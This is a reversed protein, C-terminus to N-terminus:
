AMCILCIGEGILMMCTKCGLGPCAAMVFTAVHLVVLVGNCEVRCSLGSFQAATCKSGAPRSVVLM